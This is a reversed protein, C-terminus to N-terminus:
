NLRTLADSDSNAAFDDRNPRQYLQIFYDSKRPHPRISVGDPKYYAWECFEATTDIQKCYNFWIYNYFRDLRTLKFIEFQFSSGITAHM